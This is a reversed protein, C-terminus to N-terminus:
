SSLVLRLPMLCSGLIPSGNEDELWLHAPISM